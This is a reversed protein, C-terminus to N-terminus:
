KSRSSYIVYPAWYLAGYGQQIFDLVVERLAIEPRLKKTLMLKYLTSMFLSSAKDDIEYLTALVKKVGADYFGKVMGLFLEGADRSIGTDCGSLVALETSSLDMGSVELSTIIGDTLGNQSLKNAGAFAMGSRLAPDLSILFSDIDLPLKEELIPESNYHFLIPRNYKAWAHTSIHIIRKGPALKRINKESACYGSLVIAQKPFLSAIQEVEYKSYPLNRFRRKRYIIPTYFKASIGNLNCIWDDQDAKDFNIGGILLIKDEENCTSIAKSIIDQATALYIFNKESILTNSFDKTPIAGFPINAIIGDPVLYVTKIDKSLIKEINV